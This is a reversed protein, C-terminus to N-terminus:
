EKEVIEEEEEEEKKDNGEGVEEMGEEETARWMENSVEDDSSVTVAARGFM